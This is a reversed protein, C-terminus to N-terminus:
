SHKALHRIHFRSNILTRISDMGRAHTFNPVGVMSPMVGKVWNTKITLDMTAAQNRIRSGGEDGDLYFFHIENKYERELMHQQGSMLGIVCVKPRKKPEPLPELRAKAERPKLVEPLREELAQHIEDQVLTKLASGETLAEKLLRAVLEKALAGTDFDALSPKYPAEEECAPNVLPYIAKPFDIVNERIEATGVTEGHEQVAAKAAREKTLHVWIPRLWEEVQSLQKLERHLDPQLCMVMAERVCAIDSLRDDKQRIDFAKTAVKEKHEVKWHIRKM